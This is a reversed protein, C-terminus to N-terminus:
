GGQPSAAASTGELEGDNAPPRKDAFPSPRMSEAATVSAKTASTVSGGGVVSAVCSTNIPPGNEGENERMNERMRTRERMRERMRKTMRERMTERENEGMNERMNERTNKRM